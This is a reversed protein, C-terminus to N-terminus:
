EADDRAKLTYLEADLVIENTNEDELTVSMPTEGDWYIQISVKHGYHSLLVNWLWEDLSTEGTCIKYLESRAYRRIEEKEKSTMKKVM